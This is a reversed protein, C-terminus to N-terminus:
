GDFCPTSNSEVSECSDSSWAVGEDVNYSTIFPSSSGQGICTFDGEEKTHRLRRMQLGELSRHICFVVFDFLSTPARHRRRKLRQVASLIPLRPYSCQTQSRHHCVLGTADMSLPAPSSHLEEHFPQPSSKDINTNFQRENSYKAVLLQSDESVFFSNTHLYSRVRYRFCLLHIPAGDYEEALRRFAEVARTQTWGYTSEGEVALIRDAPQLLLRPVLCCSPSLSQVFLGRKEDGEIVIGFKKEHQLAFVAVTFLGPITHQFTSM